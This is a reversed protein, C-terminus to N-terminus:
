ELLSILEKIRLNIRLKCIEQAVSFEPMIVPPMSCFGFMCVIAQNLLSSQSFVDKFLNRTFLTLVGRM